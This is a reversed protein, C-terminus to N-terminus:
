KKKIIQIKNQNIENPKNLWLIENILLLIESSKKAWKNLESVYLRDNFYKLIAFNKPEMNLRSSLKEILKTEKQQSEASQKEPDTAFFKLLYIMRESIMIARYNKDLERLNEYNIEEHMIFKIKPDNKFKKALKFALFDVQVNEFDPNNKKQYSYWIAYGCGIIIILALGVIAIIENAKM